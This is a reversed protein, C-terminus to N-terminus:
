IKFTSLHKEERRKRTTTAASTHPSKCAQKCSPKLFLTRFYYAMLLHVFYIRRLSFSSIFLLFLVGTPFCSYLHTDTMGSISSVPQLAGCCYPGPCQVTMGWLVLWWIVGSPERFSSQVRFLTKANAKLSLGSSSQSLLSPPALSSFM